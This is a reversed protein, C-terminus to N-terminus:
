PVAVQSSTGVTQVKPVWCGTTPWGWWLGLVHLWWRWYPDQHYEGCGMFWCGPQRHAHFLISHVPPGLASSWGFPRPYPQYILFMYLGQCHSKTEMCLAVQFMMQPYMPMSIFKYVTIFKTLSCRAGPKLSSSLFDVLTDRRTKADLNAPSIMYTDKDAKCLHCIQTCKYYASLRFIEQCSWM